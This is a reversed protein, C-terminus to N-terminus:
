VQEKSKHSARSFPLTQEATRSKSKERTVRPTNATRIKDWTKLIDEFDSEPVGLIDRMFKDVTMDEPLYKDVMEAIQENSMEDVEHNTHMLNSVCDALELDTMHEGRTQLENLFISRPLVEETEDTYNKTLVKFASYIEYPDLGFAPRHNIYV